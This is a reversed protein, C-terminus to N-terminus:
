KEGGFAVAPIVRGAMFYPQEPLGLNKRVDATIQALLGSYGYVEAGIFVLYDRGTKIREEPTTMRMFARGLEFITYGHENQGIDAWGHRTPGDMEPQPKHWNTRQGYKTFRPDAM